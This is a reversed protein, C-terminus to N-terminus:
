FKMKKYPICKQRDFKKKNMQSYKTVNFEALCNLLILQDSISLSLHKFVAEPTVYRALVLLQNLDTIVSVVFAAVASDSPFNRKGHLQALLRGSYEHARMKQNGLDVVTCHECKEGNIWQLTANAECSIGFLQCHTNNESLANTETDIDFDFNWKVGEPRRCIRMSNLKNLLDIGTSVRQKSALIVIREGTLLPYVCRLLRYSLTKLTSERAVVIPIYEEETRNPDEIEHRPLESNAGFTSRVVATQGCFLLGKAVETDTLRLYAEQISHKLKVGKCPALEMLNLLACSSHKQALLVVFRRFEEPGACECFCEDASGDSECLQDSVREFWANTKQVVSKLKNSVIVIQQANGSTSYYSQVNQQDRESLMLMAQRLISHVYRKNCAIIPMLLEAAAQQFAEVNKATPQSPMLFAIAFPRQFARATIDLMTSYQVLLHVALQQNFMCCLNAHVNESSMLWVAIEELLHMPVTGDDPFWYLPRPGQIQCFEVVLLVPEALCGVRRWPDAISRGFTLFEDM